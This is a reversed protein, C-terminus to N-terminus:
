NAMSRQVTQAFERSEDLKEKLAIRKVLDQLEFVTKQSSANERAAIEEVDASTAFNLFFTEVGSVKRNRSSNAHVSIFLDAQSQNALATRNELPIFTDDTRTLIVEGNLREEVLNRLKLSIDLVLEKEQLGSPGVTGTDYGGHGPDIVIRGIKLGLTRTLSRTGDSKPQAERSAMANESRSKESDPRAAKKTIEKGKSIIEVRSKNLEESDETNAAQAKSISEKEIDHDSGLLVKKSPLPDSLAAPLITTLEDPLPDGRKIRWPEKTPKLRAQQEADMTPGQIDIVIRFPHHLDSVRYNKVEAVDLVIRAVKEKAQGLRVQRLYPGAVSFTRGILEPSLRANEVDLFIRAPHDLRGDHHQAQDDLDIVLRTCEDSNWFRVNKISVLGEQKPNRPGQSPNASTKSLKAESTELTEPSNQQVRSAVNGSSKEEKGRLSLPKPNSTATKLAPNKSHKAGDRLDALRAGADRAQKTQPYKRLLDKFIEEATKLDNLDNLCIEASNFLAAPSYPNGPYEKELFEYAKIAQRFYKPDGFDNAMMQYLEAVAMLADDTKSSVPSTYYVSRFKIIVNLYEALTRLRKPRSELSTRMQIAQAFYNLALERKSSIVNAKESSLPNGAVRSECFTLLFIYAVATLFSFPSTRRRKSRLFSFIIYNKTRGLEIM